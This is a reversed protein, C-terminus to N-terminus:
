HRWERCKGNWDCHTHYQFKQSLPFLFFTNVSKLVIKESAMKHVVKKRRSTSIQFDYIKASSSLFVKKTLDITSFRIWFNNNKRSYFSNIWRIDVIKKAASEASVCISRQRLKYFFGNFTHTIHKNSPQLASFNTWCLQKFRYVLSWSKGPTWFRLFCIYTQSLPGCINGSKTTSEWIKSCLSFAANSFFLFALLIIYVM